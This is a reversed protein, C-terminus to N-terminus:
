GRIIRSLIKVKTKSKSPMSLIKMLSTKRQCFRGSSFNLCKRTVLLYLYNTQRLRKRRMPVNSHFAISIISLIRFKHLNLFRNLIKSLFSRTRLLRLISPTLCKCTMLSLTGKLKIITKRSSLIRLTRNRNLRVQNFLSVIKSMRHSMKPLNISRAM